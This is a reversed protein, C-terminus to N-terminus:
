AHEGEYSPDYPHPSRLAKSALQVVEMKHWLVHAYAYGGGKDLCKILVHIRSTLLFVPSFGFCFRSLIVHLVFNGYFNDVICANHLTDCTGNNTSGQAFVQSGRRLM